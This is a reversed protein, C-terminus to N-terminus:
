GRRKFRRRGRPTRRSSEDRGGRRTRTLVYVGIILVVLGIGAALMGDESANCCGGPSAPPAAADPVPPTATCELKDVM